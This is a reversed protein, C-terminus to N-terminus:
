ARGEAEIIRAFEVLTLELAEIIAVLTPWTPSSNSGEIRNISGTTLDAASALQQQSYGREKRLRTLVPGLRPDVTPPPVSGTERMTHDNEGNSKPTQM